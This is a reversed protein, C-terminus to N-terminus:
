WKLGAQMCESVLPLSDPDASVDAISLERMEEMTYHYRQAANHNVDLIRGTCDHIFIMDPSARYMADLLATHEQLTQEAQKDRSTDFMFGQLRVPRDDEIVINVYDLIWVSHGDRHIMRYEFIIIKTKKHLRWAITSLPRVTM